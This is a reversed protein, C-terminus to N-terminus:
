TGRKSIATLGFPLDPRTNPFLISWKWTDNLRWAWQHWRWQQIASEKIIEKFTEYYLRSTTGEEANACVEKLQHPISVYRLTKHVYISPLLGVQPTIEAQHTLL